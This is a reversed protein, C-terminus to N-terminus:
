CNINNIQMRAWLIWTNFPLLVSFLTIMTNTFYRLLLLFFFLSPWLVACFLDNALFLPLFSVFPWLVVCFLDTTFFFFFTSALSSCLLTWYTFFLFFPFSPWLIVRFLHNTKESTNIHLSLSCWTDFSPYNSSLQHTSKRGQLWDAFSTFVSSIFVLAFYPKKKKVSYKCPSLTVYARFSPLALSM